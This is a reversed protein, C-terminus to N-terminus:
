NATLSRIRQVVADSEYPKAIPPGAECLEGALEASSSIGSTVIVRVDPLRRRIWRALELGSSPGPLELDAFVIDVKLKSGLVAIADNASGAELVRYGCDRLYEAIVIRVLVEDDVVLVTPTEARVPIKINSM